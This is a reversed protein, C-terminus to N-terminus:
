STHLEFRDIWKSKESCIGSTIPNQAWRQKDGPKAEFDVALLDALIEWTPEAGARHVGRLGALIFSHLRRFTKHMRNLRYMHTAEHSTETHQDEQDEIDDCDSRNYNQSTRPHTIASGPSRPLLPLATRSCYVTHAEAFSMALDFLSIIGAHIPTLQQSLLCQRELQLVYSKHVLIMDDLDDAKALDKRMRTTTVAIVTETLYALIANAFWLLRHRLSLALHVEAVPRQCGALSIRGFHQTALTRVVRQSQMLLVFVRQYHVLTGPPVINAVAWPISYSLQLSELVRVSRKKQHLINWSDLFCVSLRKCAAGLLPDFTDRFLQTLIVSDASAGKDQDIMDFISYSANCSRAGDRQLYVHELINLTDYLGCHTELQQRLTTSSSYYRKAIWENFASDFLESFPTLAADGQEENIIEIDIRGGKGAVHHDAMAQNLAKLFRMSKGAYLIKKAAIHVFKPAYTYGNELQTTRYQESWLAERPVKCENRKVFFVNDSMLDGNEMWEQIPKLYTEFGHLFIQAMDYYVELDGIAQTACTSTYLSELVKLPRENENRDGLGEIMKALTQISRSKNKICKLLDLLSIAGTPGDGLSSAELSFLYRAFDALHTSLASQVTQLIPITTPQNIWKRVSALVSGTVAFSNLLHTLPETSIHGLHCNMSSMYRGDELQVFASSPLGQLMFLVDRCLQMETLVLSSPPGIQCRDDLSRTELRNTSINNKAPLILDELSVTSDGSDADSDTSTDRSPQENLEFCEEEESGDTFDFNDWIGESDDPPDEKFVESWTLPHLFLEPDPQDPDEFHVNQSPRDSLNLLLCLIEPNYKNPYKTLEDLRIRLADALDDNNHIRFKEELGALRSEVELPNTSAAHSTSLSRLTTLVLKELKM